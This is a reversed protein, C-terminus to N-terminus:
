VLKRTSYVTPLTTMKPIAEYQLPLNIKAFNRGGTTNSGAVTWVKTNEDWHRNM